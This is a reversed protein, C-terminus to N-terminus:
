SELESMSDLIRNTIIQIIRKAYESSHNLFEELESLTMMGIVLGVYQKKLSSNKSLSGRIYSVRKEANEEFFKTNTSTIFHKIVLMIIGHQYKVIPRLTKNQFLELESTQIDTLAKPLVPRLNLLQQERNANIM